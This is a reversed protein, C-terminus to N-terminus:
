PSRAVSALDLEGDLHAVIYDLALGLRRQYDQRTTSRM